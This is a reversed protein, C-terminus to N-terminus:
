PRHARHGRSLAPCGRARCPGKGLCDRTALSVRGSTGEVQHRLAGKMVPPESPHGLETRKPILQNGRSLPRGEECPPPHHSPLSAWLSLPLWGQPLLTGTEGGCVPSWAVRPGLPSEASSSMRWSGSAEGPFLGLHCAEKGQLQLHKEGQGPRQSLERLSGSNRSCPSCKAAGSNQSCSLSKALAAAAHSKPQM